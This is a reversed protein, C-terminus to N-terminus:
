GERGARNRNIVGDLANLLQFLRGLTFGELRGRVLASAKPLDLGLPEAAKAQILKREVILDRIRQVLKAKALARDSEDPRSRRVRERQRRQSAFRSRSCKWGTLSSHQTTDAYDQKAQRHRADGRRGAPQGVAEANTLGNREDRGM